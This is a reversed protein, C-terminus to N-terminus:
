DLIPEKEWEKLKIDQESEEYEQFVALFDLFEL